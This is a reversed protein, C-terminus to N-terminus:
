QATLSMLKISIMVQVLLNYKEELSAFFSSSRYSNSTWRCTIQCYLGQRSQRYWFDMEMFVGFVHACQGLLILPVQQLSHSSSTQMGVLCVLYFCLGSLSASGPGHQPTLIAGPLVGAFQGFLKDTWNFGWQIQPMVNCTILKGETAKSCHLFWARVSHRVNSGSSFQRPNKKEWIFNGFPFLSPSHM